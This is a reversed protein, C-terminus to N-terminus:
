FSKLYKKIDINERIVESEESHGDHSKMGEGKKEESHGDHSKMAEEENNTILTIAPIFIFGIWPM